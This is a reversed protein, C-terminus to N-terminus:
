RWALHTLSLVLVVTLRFDKVPCTFRLSQFVSGYHASIDGVLFWLNYMLLALLSSSVIVMFCTLLVLVSCSAWSVCLYRMICFLRELDSLTMRQQALQRPMYSKRNASLLLKIEIKLCEQGIMGQVDMGWREEQHFQFFAAPFLHVHQPTLTGM